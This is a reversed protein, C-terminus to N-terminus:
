RPASRRCGTAAQRSVAQGQPGARPQQDRIQIEGDPGAVVPGNQSGVSRALGGQQM